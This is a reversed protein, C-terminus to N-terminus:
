FSASPPIEEVRCVPFILETHACVFGFHSWNGSPLNHGHQKDKDTQRDTNM